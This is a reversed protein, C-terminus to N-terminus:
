HPNRLPRVELIDSTWVGFDVPQDKPIEFRQVTEPHNYWRAEVLYADDTEKEGYLRFSYEDWNALPTPPGSLPRGNAQIVHVLLEM